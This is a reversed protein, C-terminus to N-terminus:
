TRGPRAATARSTCWGTTRARGCCARRRAAVGRVRLDHRLVRRQHQGEHDARRVARAQTADNRTLDPSIPRGARGRTPRASSARQGGRLAINPDHPSIVIPFTWQFRYKMGEAGTAWRTRPGSPSTACRAPAGTTAAHHLRRLLGAYVVDPDGPKPAIYGSECAAWTTGTPRTRHRRGRHPQRHRVTRTTRSRATSTTRSATTRSRRPLVARDAPQGPAVLHAGGDFSVNAGGDNGEIMRQPDEPAIWLDHNDGHPTASRRSPRAATRRGASAAREARLGHGREEPRRLHAHLVLRAPAPAPGRQHATWTSARTTPASSAATRPRSSRGCATPNRPRSRSASADGRTGERCGRAPSSRGPTAATPRSASGAARARREDFGWPTRRVQWFGAYLVRPNTPDMRSTSPARRQRRRVAGEALDQRRGELPLRRAGREARVHPRAGRRLRPRPRAPPRADRRDAAHRAPRRADLDQRRGDVTCATATRSTAASAAGRGHRRLRREPDSQAVAIAGVSGTGLQGDTMPSGASAPTRRRGSAAARAASTTSSPSAPFARWRWPGGAATPVSPAGAWAAWAGDAAAPSPTPSPRPPAAAASVGAVSVGVFSWVAVLARVRPM